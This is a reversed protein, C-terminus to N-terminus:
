RISLDFAYRYDIYNKSEHNDIWGKEKHSELSLNRANMESFRSCIDELVNQERKSLNSTDSNVNIVM